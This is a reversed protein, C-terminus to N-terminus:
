STSSILGCSGNSRLKSISRHLTRSQKLRYLNLLILDVKSEPRKVEMQEMHALHDEQYEERALYSLEEGIAIQRERAIFKAREKEEARAAAADYHDTEVFYSGCTQYTNLPQPYSM